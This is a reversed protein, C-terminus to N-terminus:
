EVTHWFHNTVLINLYVPDIKVSGLLQELVISLQARHMTNNVLAIM